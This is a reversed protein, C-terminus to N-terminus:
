HRREFGGHNGRETNIEKVWMGGVLQYKTPHDWLHKEPDM